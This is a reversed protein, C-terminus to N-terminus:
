KELIKIMNTLNCYFAYPSRYKYMTKINYDYLKPSLPCSLETENLDEQISFVKMGIKKYYQYAVSSESLFVKCGSRIGMGINGLAQQREHGFIRFGCSNIIRGYEQESLFNKIPVFNDGWLAFGIEKVKKVYEPSGGYSLPVYIKRDSINLKALSDFLDLHNNTEDGSNGILINMGDTRLDDYRENEDKSVTAYNFTVEKARFHTSQKMMSYEQPLVGSFYDIRDLAKRLFHGNIKNKIADFLSPTIHKIFDSTKPGYLNMDIFPRANPTCYIDKGWALWVIKIHQPIRLIHIYHLSYINHLIVVDINNDRLYKNINWPSEETIKEPNRIYKYAGNHRDKAQIMYVSHAMDKIYEFEEIICDTFKDDQIFHLINIM